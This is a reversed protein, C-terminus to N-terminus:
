TDRAEEPSRFATKGAGAEVAFRAWDPVDVADADRRLLRTLLAPLNM